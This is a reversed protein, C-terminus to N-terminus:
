LSRAGHGAEAEDLEGAIPLAAEAAAAPAPLHPHLRRGLLTHVHDADLLCQGGLGVHDAHGAGEAEGHDVEAALHRPRLLRELDLVDRLEHGLAQLLAHVRAVLLDDSPPQLQGEVLSGVLTRREPLGQASIPLADHLSLTYIETTATDNFFFSFPSSEASLFM